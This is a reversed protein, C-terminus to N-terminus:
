TLSFNGFVSLIYLCVHCTQRVTSPVTPSHPEKYHRIAADQPFSREAGGVKGKM